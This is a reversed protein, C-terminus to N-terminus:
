THRRLFNQRDTLFYLDSQLLNINGTINVSEKTVKIIGDQKKYIETYGLEVLDVATEARLFSNLYTLEQNDTYGDVALLESFTFGIRTKFDTNNYSLYVTTVAKHSSWVEYSQNSEQVSFFHDKLWNQLQTLIKKNNEM